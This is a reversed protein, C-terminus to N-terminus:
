KAFFNSLYDLKSKQIEDIHLKDPLRPGSHFPFITLLIFVSKSETAERPFASYYYLRSWACSKISNERFGRFLNIVM